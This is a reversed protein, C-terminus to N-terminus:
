RSTSRIWGSSSRSRRPGCRATSRGGTPRPCSAPATTSSPTASRATSPRRSRRSSPASPRSRRTPRARREGCRARHRAAARSAAVVGLLGIELLFMSAARESAGVQAAYRASAVEDAGRALRGARSAPRRADRDARRALDVDRAPQGRLRFRAPPPNNTYGDTLGSLALALFQDRSRRPCTTPPTPSCGTARTSARRAAERHGARRGGLRGQRPERRAGVETTAEGDFFRSVPGSSRTRRRSTPRRRTCRRATRRAARRRVVIRELRGNPAAYLEATPKVYTFQKGGVRASQGPNLAVDRVEKFSSSAAVGVFLM